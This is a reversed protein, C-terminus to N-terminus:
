VLVGTEDVEKMKKNFDDLRTDNKGLDDVSGGGIVQLCGSWHCILLMMCILNFIKMFVGMSKLLQLSPPSVLNFIKIHLLEMIHDNDNSTDKLRTGWGM